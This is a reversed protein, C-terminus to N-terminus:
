INKINIYKILENNKEWIKFIINDILYINLQIKINNKLKIYNNKPIIYSNIMNLSYTNKIQMFKHFLFNVNNIENFINKIKEKKFYFNIYNFPTIYSKIIIGIYRYSINKNLIIPKNEINEKKQLIINNVIKLFYNSPYLLFINEYKYKNILNIAIRFKQQHLNKYSFLYIKNIYLLYFGKNSKIINFIRKNILNILINNINKNFYFINNIKIKNIKLLEKYKNIKKLDNYKNNLFLFNIKKIINNYIKYNNLNKINLYISKIHMKHIKYYKIIQTEYISYINQNIYITNILYNSNIIIDLINKYKFKYLNFQIKYNNLFIFENLNEENIQNYLKFIFIFNKILISKKVEEEFKDGSINLLNLLNIYKNENINYFYKTFINETFNLLDNKTIIFDNTKTLQTLLNIYILKNIINKKLENPNNIFFNNNKLFFINNTIKNNLKNFDNKTIFSKNIKAVYLYKYNIIKNEKVNNLNIGFNMLMSISIVAICIILLVLLVSKFFKNLYV